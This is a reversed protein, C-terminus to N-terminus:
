KKGVLQQLLFYNVYLEDPVITETDDKGTPAPTADPPKGSVSEGSPVQHAESPDFRFLDRIVLEKNLFIYGVLDQPASASFNRTEGSLLRRCLAGLNEKFLPNRWLKNFDKLDLSESVELLLELRKRDDSSM